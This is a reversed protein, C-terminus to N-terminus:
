TPLENGQMHPMSSGELAGAAQRYREAIDPRNFLAPLDVMAGLGTLRNTLALVMLVFAAVSEWRQRETTSPMGLAEWTPLLAVAAQVASALGHPQADGILRDVAGPSLIGLGDLLQFGAFATASDVAGGLEAALDEPDLAESVSTGAGVEFLGTVTAQVRGVHEWKEDVASRAPGPSGSQVSGDFFRNIVAGGSSDKGSATRAEQM